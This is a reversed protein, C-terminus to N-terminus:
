KVIVTPKLELTERIRSAIREAEARDRYPGLHLRYLGEGTKIQITDTLWGLQQYVRARFNEANDLHSFAGIQLYFGSADTTVPVNPVDATPVPVEAPPAVLPAPTLPVAEPAPLARAAIAPQSPIEAEPAPEPVLRGVAKEKSPHFKAPDISEVEVVASGAKVYGLRYAATYSLDMIRDSLFPGRDNIRVVVSRRNAVNTVRAYSPIPLTPHAATMAYMDYLEGSSTKAGHFKRGYWSAIGRQRFAKITTQPVYEKGFVSYPRNAGSLLPEAKPVADPIDDLNAPPHEGPGDDQYYGGGGKVPAQTPTGSGPTAAPAAAPGTSQREPAVRKPMLGCGSMLLACLVMGGVRLGIQAKM